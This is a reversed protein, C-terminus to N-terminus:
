TTSKEPQRAIAENVAFHTDIIRGVTRTPTRDGLKHQEQVIKRIVVQDTITIRTPIELNAQQTESM